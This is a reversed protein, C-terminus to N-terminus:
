RFILGWKALYRSQLDRDICILRSTGQHPRSAVWDVRFHCNRRLFEWAWNEASLGTAVHRTKGSACSRMAVDMTLLEQQVSVMM